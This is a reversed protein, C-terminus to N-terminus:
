RAMQKLAWTVPLSIFDTRGSVVFGITMKPDGNVSFHFNGISLDGASTYVTAASDRICM